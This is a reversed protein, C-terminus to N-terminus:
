SKEGARQNEAALELLRAELEAVKARAETLADYYGVATSEVKNRLALQMVEVNQILALELAHEKRAVDEELEAIAKDAADLADLAAPLDTRSKAMFAHLPSTSIPGLSGQDDAATLLVMRYDIVRGSKASEESVLAFHKGQCSVYEPGCDEEVLECLPYCEYSHDWRWPGPPAAECRARAQARHEATMFVERQKKQDAVFEVVEVHTLSHCSSAGEIWAVSHESVVTAEHKIRGTGTPEGCREFSWYRVMTGVPTAANFAEVERQAIETRTPPHVYGSLLRSTLRTFPVDWSDAVRLLFAAKAKGRTEADIVLTGDWEHGIFGTIGIEFSPM